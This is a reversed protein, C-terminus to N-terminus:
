KDIFEKRRAPFNRSKSLCAGSESAVSSPTLLQLDSEDQLSEGQQSGYPLGAKHNPINPTLGREQLIAEYHKLRDILAERKLRKQKKQSRRVPRFTCQASHKVCTSCPDQRDCKIKRDSCRICSYVPRNSTTPSTEDM